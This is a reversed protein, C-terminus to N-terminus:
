HQGNRQIRLTLDILADEFHSAVWGRQNQILVADNPCALCPFQRQLLKFTHQSFRTLLNSNPQRQEDILAILGKKLFHMPLQVLSGGTEAITESNNPINRDISSEIESYRLHAVSAM